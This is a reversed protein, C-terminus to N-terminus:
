CHSKKRIFVHKNTGYIKERVCALGVDALWLFDTAASAEVIYITDDKVYKTKVINEIVSREFGKDYPPDMFVIDFATKCERLGEINLANKKIIQANDTFEARQLNERIVAVAKPSKEVFCCYLAGRSLAEIGIAGSGAFLDLFACGPIYPAIINFLTEKIRDTTPRTSLGPVSKLNLSKRTGAIIRM